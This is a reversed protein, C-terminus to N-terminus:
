ATAGGTMPASPAAKLRCAPMRKQMAKVKRHLRHQRKAFSGSPIRQGKGYLAQKWPSQKKSSYWVGYECGGARGGNRHRVFFKLIEWKKESM